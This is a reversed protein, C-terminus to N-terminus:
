MYIKNEPVFKVLKDHIFDLMTKTIDEEYTCVNGQTEYPYNLLISNRRNKKMKKLYQKPVRFAGVSVDYLKDAPIRSFVEDIFSGYVKEFNEIYLAPDICLRVRWGKEIAAKVSELRKELSPAGHEFKESVEKPSLTWAFVVNHNPQINEIARFNDSKTRIEMTLNRNENVFKLWKATFLTINEFALIDTDYSVCLYVPSKKLLGQLERFYDEINVFVVINASSYMGQLYCYECDYICNMMTSTYYFNENGFSECVEAGKYILNHKKVALILKPSRKQLIVNQHARSFMDKYHNIYIVQANKFHGLINKTIDYNLAEKEVYIHSFPANFLNQSLNQM